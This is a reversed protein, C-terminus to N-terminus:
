IDAAGVVDDFAAYLACSTVPITFLLGIGFALAGLINILVLVVILGFFSLWERGILKRSTEMAIWFDMKGFIVFLTSFTYAVSLYIGPLIFLMTGVAILFSTVITLLFLQLFYHFGDFFNELVVPRGREIMHAVIFFGAALPGSIIFGGMPMMVLLLITYVIFLEPKKIFIDYGRRIYNEINLRYGRGTREEIVSDYDNILEM